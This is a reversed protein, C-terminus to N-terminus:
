GDNEGADYEEEFPPPLPPLSLPRIFLLEKETRKIVRSTTGEGEGVAMPQSPLNRKGSLGMTLDHNVQSSM